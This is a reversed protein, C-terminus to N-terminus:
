LLKPLTQPTAVQRSYDLVIGEAEAVMSKCRAADALLDRLHLPAVELAHDALARASALSRISMPNRGTPRPTLIRAGRRRARPAYRRRLGSGAARTEPPPAARTSRSRKEFVGEGAGQRVLGSPTCQKAMRCGRCLDM